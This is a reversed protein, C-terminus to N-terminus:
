VEMANKLTVLMEEPQFPKAMYRYIQGLNIAEVVTGIDAYGTLLIKIPDPYITAIKKLFEVGSTGPMKQDTLIIHIQESKLIDLGEEASNALHIEFNKKFLYRFSILNPEEDDVYLIKGAIM